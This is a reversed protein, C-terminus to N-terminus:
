HQVRSSSLLLSGHKQNARAGDEKSQNASPLWICPPSSVIHMNCGQLSSRQRTHCNPSVSITSQYGSVRPGYRAHPHSRHGRVSWWRMNGAGPACRTVEWMPHMTMVHGLHPGAFIASTWIINVASPLSSLVVLIRDSPDAWSLLSCLSIFSM